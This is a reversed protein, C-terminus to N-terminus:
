AFVAPPAVESSIRTSNLVVIERNVILDHKLPGIIPAEDAVIM